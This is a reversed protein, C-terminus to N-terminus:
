RIRVLAIRPKISSAPLSTGDSATLRIQMRDAGPSQTLLAHKGSGARLTGSYGYTALTVDDPVLPYPRPFDGAERQNFDAFVTRFDWFLYQMRANSSSFGPLNDLYNALQWQSVLNSFSQGVVTEVNSGGVRSTRVLQRTINTGYEDDGFHDALWSVFLWAAGRETLEGSSSSPAVLFSAEPDMLYNYANVVNGVAFQSVCDNAICRSPDAAAIKRGALEEAYHSLGENLWVDETSLAQRILVHQNYSIMHQFEHSFTPPLNRNAYEKTVECTVSTPDPVLGYFIEGGNSNEEDPFLDLGFFYGLVRSVKCDDSLANVQPTLLVVVVGNDDIDSERGFALTDIPYLYDDFLSGVNDLEEQTYGNAPAANDVYIAVRDGVHKATAPVQVFDEDNCEPTGCVSFTRQSGNTPKTIAASPKLDELAGRRFLAGPSTSLAMERRRLSRHFAAADSPGRGRFATLRPDPLRSAAKRITPLSAGGDLNFPAAKGSETEIGDTALAAYLYQAGNSGAAPIEICSGDDLPNIVRVDGVAMSQVNDATCTSTAIDPGGDGTCGALGLLVSAATAVKRPFLM